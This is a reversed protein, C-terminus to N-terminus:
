WWAPPHLSPSTAENAELAGTQSRHVANLLCPGKRIRKAGSSTQLRAAPSALVRQKNQSERDLSLM